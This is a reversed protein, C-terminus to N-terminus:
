LSSGPKHDRKRNNLRRYEWAKRQRELRQRNIYEEITAHLNPSMALSVACVVLVTLVIWGSLKVCFSVVFWISNM